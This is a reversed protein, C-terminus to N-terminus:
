ATEKLRFLHQGTKESQIKNHLKNINHAIALIVSQATVNEKGRYMYRRFEMDEKVSAFSGEAQISRNVRLQIGYPSTIRELDEARKQKMTKSVYLTKNRQEMSTKCNNGKICDTKYPCGSCDSCKYVTTTRRYGTATKGKKEYQATLKRNNKCIYFDNEKDYDMNEMKGIDTKFRRKKSIEYKNPKIFATQGNAEIFLYNEESEYGADAVIETYKFGLNQEMDKLFPILTKTDTPNPNITLWTIYESDVGHQLNYAPKLQGNLMHDEKMRMFTADPDTKSYSNREGCAYLKHIYEKLKGIYMELSEISKQIASKRRGIGHVFTIGESEKIAYLKKRIRKLSHLSISDQYVLKLGYMEECEAILETIKAFLKTQNKTVAKKWVFTYRNAASEIKTGDIFIHRGSIEGLEYLINSVEALINSSCQSLHLSIFRAITAHDPSPKGELLYMFNIDRRCSKEIDRSSYIRNMGAYIVIKLLQRPSVQDKKIKGYTNYLDLLEMGEVFASLLRVPDDSPINKEIDLPLKIQYYLCSSTYDKQLKIHKIM